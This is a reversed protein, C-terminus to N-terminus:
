LLVAKHIWFAAEMLELEDFFDNPLPWIFSYPVGLLAFIGIPKMKITVNIFKSIKM